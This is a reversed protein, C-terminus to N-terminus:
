LSALNSLVRGTDKPATGSVVGNVWKGAMGSSTINHTSIAICAKSSAFLDGSASLNVINGDSLNIKHITRKSGQNGSIVGRFNVDVLTAGVPEAPIEIDLRELIFESPSLETLFFADCNYQNNADILWPFVLKGQRTQGTRTQPSLKIIARPTIGKDTATWTYAENNNGLIVVNLLGFLPALDNAKKITKVPANITLGNNTDLGNVQDVYITKYLSNPFNTVADELASQIDDLAGSTIEETLSNVSAVLTAVQAELTM